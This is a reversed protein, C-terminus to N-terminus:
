NGLEIDEGKGSIFFDFVVPAGDGVLREGNGLVAAVTADDLDNLSAKTRNRFTQYKEEMRNGPAKKDILAARLRTELEKALPNGRDAATFVSGYATDLIWVYEAFSMKEGRLERELSLPLQKMTGLLRKVADIADSVDTAAGSQLREFEALSERSPDVVRERLALVADLREPEIRSTAPRVFPHDVNTQELQVFSAEVEKGFDMMKKAFYGGAGIVVLVVLIVLGGIVALCGKM